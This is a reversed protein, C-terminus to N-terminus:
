ADELYLWKCSQQLFTPNPSVIVVTIKSVYKVILDNTYCLSAVRPGLEGKITNKNHQKGLVLRLHFIRGIHYQKHM